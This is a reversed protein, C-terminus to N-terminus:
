ELKGTDVDAPKFAVGINRYAYEVEGGNGQVKLYIMGPPASKGEQIEKAGKMGFFIRSISYEAIWKIGRYIWIPKEGNTQINLPKPESSGMDLVSYKENSFEGAMPFREPKGTEPNVDEMFAQLDIQVVQPDPAHMVRAFFKRGTPTEGNVEVLTFAEGEGPGVTDMFTLVRLGANLIDELKGAGVYAIGNEYKM